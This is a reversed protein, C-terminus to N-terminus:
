SLTVLMNDEANQWTMPNHFKNILAADYVKREM